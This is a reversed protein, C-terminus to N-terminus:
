QDQLGKGLFAHSLLFYLAKLLRSDEGTRRIEDYLKRYDQYNRKCDQVIKDQASRVLQMGDQCEEQVPIVRNGLSVDMERGESDKLFIVTDGDEEDHMIRVTGPRDGIFTKGSSVERLM